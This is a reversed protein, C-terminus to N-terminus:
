RFYMPNKERCIDASLKQKVEESDTKNITIADSMVVSYADSNLIGFVSSQCDKVKMEEENNCGALALVAVTVAALKIKM